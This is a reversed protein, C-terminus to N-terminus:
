EVKTRTFINKRTWGEKSLFGATTYIDTTYPNYFVEVTEIRDAAASLVEEVRTIDILNREDKRFDIYTDLHPLYLNEGEKCTVFLAFENECGAKSNTNLATAGVLAAEKFKLYAEETYGEFDPLLRTFEDYHNPNVSFPYFYHAENSVVKKGLSSADAEEKASNRFPSLIDQVEVLSDEYKNFGQGIQVIGTLGINQKKVAFTAGFNLVDITSFLNGLVEQSSTKDSIETDFLENYREALEKPQIKNKEAGKQNLIYSKFYLVKEGQSVWLRKMSYKLAKDSGFITGDSCTKPRGTFDANWNAMRSAIGIVGYVRKNMKAM